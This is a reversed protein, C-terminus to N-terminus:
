GALWGALWGALYVCAVGACQGALLAPVSDTPAGAFGAAARGGGAKICVTTQPNPADHGDAGLWSKLFCRGLSGTEYIIFDCTPLLQCLQMCQQHTPVGAAVKVLENGQRDQRYLCQMHTPSYGVAGAHLCTCSQVVVNHYLQLCARFARRTPTLQGHASVPSCCHHHHAALACLLQLHSNV